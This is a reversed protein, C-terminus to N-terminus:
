PLNKKPEGQGTICGGCSLGGLAAPMRNKKWACEAELLSRDRGHARFLACGSWRNRFLREQTHVPLSRYGLVGPHEDLYSIMTSLWNETTEVDSNLLVVYEADVQRLAKNYGEAFGYNKDLVILPVQPFRTSLFDVSDDSSGNDAVVVETQHDLTHQLVVPLFEELLRRGNWNLIVVSTKMRGQKEVPVMQQAVM